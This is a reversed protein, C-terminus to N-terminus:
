AAWRGRLEARVGAEEALARDLASRDMISKIADSYIRRFEMPPLADLEFQVLEPLGMARLQAGYTARFRPALSQHEKGPPFPNLPLAAVQDIELGVRIVQDFGVRAAFQDGILVGALDFDGAYILTSPRGDAEVERRVRERFTQSAWGGLPLIALGLDDFWGALQQLLGAKEVGIYILRPQHRSRDVRTISVLWDHADDADEFSLVRHITRTNDIFDPFEGADRARTTWASLNQYDRRDNVIIGLTVLHYLVPPPDRRDDHEPRVSGRHAAGHGSLRAEAARGDPSPSRMTRCIRPGSRTERPTPTCPRAPITPNRERLLITTPSFTMDRPAVSVGQVLGQVLGQVRSMM